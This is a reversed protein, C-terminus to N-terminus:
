GNQCYSLWKEGNSDGVAGFMRANKRGRWIKNHINFHFPMSNPLFYDFTNQTHTRQIHRTPRIELATKNAHLIMM